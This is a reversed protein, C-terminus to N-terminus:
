DDLTPFRDNLLADRMWMATHADVRGISLYEALGEVMWLPLNRISGLSTSDGSKLMNFQFAHVLEHGIVHSTQSNTELLPFIVRNKIGETVGGTGIGIYSPITTTRRFEAHHNYIVVRNRSDFTDKVVEQHKEFWLEHLLALARATSDSELYHYIQFNPSQLVEFDFTRYRPKNRGFYQAYGSHAQLLLLLTIWLGITSLIRRDSAEKKPFG